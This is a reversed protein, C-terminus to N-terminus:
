QGGSRDILRSKKDPPALANCRTGRVVLLKSYSFSHLSRTYGLGGRELKLGLRSPRHLHAEPSPRQSPSHPLYGPGKTM